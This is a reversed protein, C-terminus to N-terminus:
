DNQVERNDSQSHRLAAKLLRTYDTPQRRFVMSTQIITDRPMMERPRDRRRTQLTDRATLLRPHGPVGFRRVMWRGSLEAKLM